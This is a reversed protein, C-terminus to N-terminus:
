VFYEKLFFKSHFYEYCSNLTKMNKNKKNRVNFAIKIPASGGLIALRQFFLSSM